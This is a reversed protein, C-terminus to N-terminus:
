GGLTRWRRRVEPEVMEKALDILINGRERKRKSFFFLATTPVCASITAMYVIDCFVALSCSRMALKVSFRLAM